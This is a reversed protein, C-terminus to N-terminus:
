GAHQRPCVSSPDEELLQLTASVLKEPQTSLAKAIRLLMALSPQQLGRELMSLYSRDAGAGDALTQQSMGSSTRAAKLVKGFARRVRGHVEEAAQREVEVVPQQQLDQSAMVNGRHTNVLQPLDVVAGYAAADGAPFNGKNFESGAGNPVLAGLM